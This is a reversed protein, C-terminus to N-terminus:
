WAATTGLWLSAMTFPNPNLLWVDVQCIGMAEQERNLLPDRTRDVWQHFTL